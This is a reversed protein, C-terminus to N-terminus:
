NNKEEVINFNIVDTSLHIANVQKISKNNLVHKFHVIAGYVPSANM